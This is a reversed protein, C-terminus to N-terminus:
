VNNPEGKKVDQYEQFLVYSLYAFVISFYPVTPNGEIASNVSLYSFYLFLVSSEILGLEYAWVKKKRLQATVIFTITLLPICTFLFISLKPFNFQNTADGIAFVIIGVAFTLTM